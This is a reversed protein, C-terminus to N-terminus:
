KSVLKLLAILAVQVISKSNGVFSKLNPEQALIKSRINIKNEIETLPSLIDTDLRECTHSKFLLHYPTHDSCLLQAVGNEIDLNKSAANTMLADIKSCLFSATINNTDCTSALRELTECILNVIQKRDEYAFFLPRLPVFKTTTFVLFNLFICNKPWFRWKKCLFPNLHALFSCKKLIKKNSKSM